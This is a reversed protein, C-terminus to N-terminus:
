PAFIRRSKLGRLYFVFKLLFKLMQLFMFM